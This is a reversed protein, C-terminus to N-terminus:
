NKTLPRALTGLRTQFGGKGYKSWYRLVKQIDALQTLTITNGTIQKQLRRILGQFGGIGNVPRVFRARQEPSLKIELRIDM